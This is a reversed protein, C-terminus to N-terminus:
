ITQNGYNCFLGQYDVASQQRTHMWSLLLKFRRWILITSAMSDFIISSLDIEIPHGAASNLSFRGPLEFTIKPTPVTPRVSLDTIEYAGKM